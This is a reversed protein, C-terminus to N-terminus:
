AKWGCCGSSAGTKGKPQMTSSGQFGTETAYNFRWSINNQDGNYMGIMYQHDQGMTYNEEGSNGVPKVVTGSTINIAEYTRRLNYGGNYTGENGGWGFGNKSHVTKQQHHAGPETGSRGILTQTPFYYSYQGNGYFIGYNEFSLGWSDGGQASAGTATITQTTFDMQDIASRGGGCFFSKKTEWFITAFRLRNGTTNRTFGSTLQTENIMNYAIVYNSSVVHGNGAGYIFLATESCAGSQYNFSREMSGDGLNTTTDTATVTRNVNNWATGGRYGGAMYATTIIQRQKFPVAFPIWTNESFYEVENNDTNYRIMGNAGGPRQGTTGNPLRLYGTDNVVTNKLTAM